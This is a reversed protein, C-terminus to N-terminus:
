DSVRRGFRRIVEFHVGICHRATAGGCADPSVFVNGVPTRKNYIDMDTTERNSQHRRRSFDQKRGGSALTADNVMKRSSQRYLGGRSRGPAILAIEVRIQKKVERDM